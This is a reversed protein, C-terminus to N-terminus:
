NKLFVWTAGSGGNAAKEYGSEGAFPCREIFRRVTGGLVAETKSHNGKGHIICLKKCGRNKAGTFFTDLSFWAEESTLGHIDLIDDPQTRRLNHRHEGPAPTKRADADKDYIENNRLWTEMIDNKSARTVDTSDPQKLRAPSSKGGSQEQEWKKLIDGFDM